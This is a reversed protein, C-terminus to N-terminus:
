FEMNLKKIARRRWLIAFRYVAVGGVTEADDALEVVASLLRLARKIQGHEYVPQRHGSELQLVAQGLLRDFVCHLLVFAVTVRALGQEQETPADDMEGEIVM